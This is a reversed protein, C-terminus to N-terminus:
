ALRNQRRSSLARILGAGAALTISTGTVGIIMSPGIPWDKNLALVFATYNGLFGALMCLPGYMTLSWTTRRLVVPPVILHTLVVEPGADNVTFCCFGGVLTLTLFLWRGPLKGQLSALDPDFATVWLGRRMALAIAMSLAAIATVRITGDELVSLLRGRSMAELDFEAYGSELLLLQSAGTAVLFVVAAWIGTAGPRRHTIISLVFLALATIFIATGVQMWYPPPALVTTSEANRSAIDLAGYIFFSFAVGADATQPLAFALLPMRRLILFTGLLPGVLGVISGVIFADLYFELLLEQNDIFPLPM